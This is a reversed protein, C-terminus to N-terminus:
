KGGEKHKYQKQMGYIVAPCEGFRRRIFDYFGRMRASAIGDSKARKHYLFDWYIRKLLAVDKRYWVHPMFVRSFVIYYARLKRFFTLNKQSWLLRNRTFYYEYLPSENGSFSSSVKHWVKARPVSLSEYGARRGAYCWDVEEYLLFFREDM